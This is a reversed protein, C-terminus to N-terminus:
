VLVQVTTHLGKLNIPEAGSIGPDQTLITVVQELVRLVTARNRILKTSQSALIIVLAM